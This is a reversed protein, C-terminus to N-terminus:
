TAGQLISTEGTAESLTEGPMQWGTCGVIKTKPVGDVHEVASRYQGTETPVSLGHARENSAKSVSKVPEFCASASRIQQRYACRSSYRTQCVHCHQQSDGSLLHLALLCLLGCAFFFTWLRSTQLHVSNSHQMATEKIEARQGFSMASSMALLVSSTLASLM